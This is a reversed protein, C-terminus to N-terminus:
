KSSHKEKVWKIAKASKGSVLIIWVHPDIEPNGTIYCQYMEWNIHWYWVTKISISNVYLMINTDLTCYLSEINTYIAFHDDDYIKNVDM